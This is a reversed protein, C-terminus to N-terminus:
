DNKTLFSIILAAACVAATESRLIQKGLSVATVGQKTASAIEDDTFGGEPGTIVLIDKELMHVRDNSNLVSALTPAKSREQLFITTRAVGGGLNPTARGKLLDDFLVPAVIHPITARESQESAEKAIARWRRIRPSEEASRDNDTPRVVTRHCIIPVIETVGLETLKEIAWEFREGKLLPVAVSLSANLVPVDDLKEEITCVVIKKGVESLCVRYITGMGDLVDITDGKGLRLVGVIQKVQAADDIAVIQSALDIADSNVFFRPIRM